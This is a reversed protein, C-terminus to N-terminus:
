YELLGSFGWDKRFTDEELKNLTRRIQPHEHLTLILSTTTNTYLGFDVEWVSQVKPSKTAPQSNPSLFRVGESHSVKSATGYIMWSRSNHPGRILLLGCMSYTHGHLSSSRRMPAKEM